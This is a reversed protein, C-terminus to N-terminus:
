FNSINGGTLLNAIQQATLGSFGGSAQNFVQEPDGGASSISPQIPTIQAFQNPTLDPNSFLANAAQSATLNPFINLVESLTDVLNKDDGFTTTGGIFSLGGGLNTPDNIPVDFGGKDKAFQQAPTLGLFDFLGGFPLNSTDPINEAPDQSPLDAKDFTGAINLGGGQCAKCTQNVNGFADQTITSGCPCTTAPDDILGTDEVMKQPQPIEESLSLNFQNILDTLTKQQQEFLKTFDPFEPFEPFEIKPFEPFNFDPFKIDPFSPFTIDPFSPLEPFKLGAFFGGIDKRFIVILIIIAALGLGAIGFPSSLAAGVGRGAVRSGASAAREARSVM